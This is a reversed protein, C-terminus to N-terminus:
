TDSQPGRASAAQAKDREAILPELRARIRNLFAPPVQSLDTVVHSEFHARREDPTMQRVEDATVVDRGFFDKPM